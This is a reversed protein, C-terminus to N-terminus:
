LLPKELKAKGLSYATIVAQLEPGLELPEAIFITDRM